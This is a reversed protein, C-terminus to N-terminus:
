KSGNSVLREPADIITEVQKILSRSQRYIEKANLAEPSYNTQEFKVEISQPQQPEQTQAEQQKTSALIAKASDLSVSANVRSSSILSNLSGADKKVFSLDLIPTITPHFEDTNELMSSVSSLTSVMSTAFEDLAGNVSSDQNFPKALGELISDGIGMAVKSPSNIDWPLKLAGVMRGGLDGIASMVGGPDVGTVAEVIGSLIAGALRRGAAGLEPSRKDIVDSLKNLLETVFTFMADAIEAAANSLGSLFTKVFEVGAALITLWHKGAEDLMTTIFNTIADAIAQGMTALGNVFTQVFNAGAATIELWHNGAEALMTTILWTIANAIDTATQGIGVLFQIIANKGAEIIEQTKESIGTIMNIIINGAADIVLQINDAIGQLFAALVALGGAALEDAREQLVGLFKVIIDAVTNTIEEIHESIGRLFSMLLQFGSEIIAPANDNIVKLMTQIITTMLEGFKPANDILLQLWANLAEGLKSIIGPLADALQQAIKVIANGVAEALVPLTEAIVKAGDLGIEVLDQLAAVIMGIATAILVAAVGFLAGGIGLLILAAGLGLIAPLAPQILVAAITIVALAAAVAILSTIIQAISMDGLVKLASALILIAGAAIAMGAAGAVAGSMAAMAVTIILLAAALGVLGQILDGLGMNGLIAIAGAIINLAVGMAVMALATAILRGEDPFANVAIVLIAMTAAVGLLGQVITKLDMTGFISVAAAIMNLAVGIAVMAVATSLMKGENPMNNVAIVLMALAVGVGVLGQILHGTELNGLIAVATSMIVLAAAMALIGVGSAILKGSNPMNNVAITVGALLLGVAILGKALEGADMTSLLKVALSLILMASALLILGGALAATKASGGFSSTAKDLLAMAGVLIGFGVALGIMAKTLAASDILSLVLVSATIIGIAIALKMLAEAKLNKQMADLTGTLQELAGSINEMFGGGFDLKFGDKMFKRLLLVIGALLGTNLADFIADTDAGSFLEAVKKLVSKFADVIVDLKGRLWNGLDGLKEIITQLWGFREGVRDVASTINDAGGSIEDSGFFDKIAGALDGFLGIINSILGAINLSGLFRAIPYIYTEFFGSIAGGDVLVEKLKIIKYAFGSLFDFIQGGNASKFSSFLERFVGAVNKIIEIGIAVASFFGKFIGKLKNLAEESPQLREFFDRFNATMKALEAATTAPFVERFAKGLRDLISAVVGFANGLGDILAQRGGLFRWGELLNNRAESTKTVFGGIANNISTFLKPAEEFDGIILRFTNAWGSGISEKVTGVLQTFTKVKTAAEQGLAGLEIMQQAAADSFGLSKLTAEDLDGSFASLTTSLVDATLWGKEMQERFTGGKQEWEEFTAGMPVDTITKMAKGTEFLAKKFVEGGMGANVVSNWDMLSVKGAALAQSLQYMATSAQQSNSGSIAALNAIGKIANVSDDLGVGAATFTGINRAMESFNYITKDSYENLKDLAANVDGLTSGDSKTNALITQISNMNTEYERFGDMLPELSLNKVIQAGANLTMGVVNNIVSFAVAGMVSFKSSVNDLAAAIGSLNVNNAAANVDDFSKAAGGFNLKAKLKDLTSMTNSVRQEFTSNDFKMSVVREDINNSM